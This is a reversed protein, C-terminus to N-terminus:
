HKHSKESVVKKKDKLVDLAEALRISVLHLCQEDSVEIASAILDYLEQYENIDPM